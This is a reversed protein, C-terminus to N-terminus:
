KINFVTTKIWKIKYKGKSLNEGLYEKWTIKYTVSDGEKLYKLLQTFKRNIPIKKWTGGKYKKLSFQKSYFLEKKKNNTVKIKIKRKSASVVKVVVKKKPNAAEVYHVVFMIQTLLTIALMLSLKVIRKKKM